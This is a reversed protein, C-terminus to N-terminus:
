EGAWKKLDGSCQVEKWPKYEQERADKIEGFDDVMSTTPGTKMHVLGYEETLFCVYHERAEGVGGLTKVKESMKKIDLFGEVHPAVKDKFKKGDDTDLFLSLAVVLVAGVIWEGGEDIFLGILFLVGALIYM